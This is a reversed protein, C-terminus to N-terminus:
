FRWGNNLFSQLGQTLQLDFATMYDDLKAEKSVQLADQVISEMLGTATEEDIAIYLSDGLELEGCLESWSMDCLNELQQEDFDKNWVAATLIEDIASVSLM